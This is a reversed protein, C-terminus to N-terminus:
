FQGALGVGGPLPALGVTPSTPPAAMDVQGLKLTTRVGDYRDPDDGAVRLAIWTIIGVLGLAGAGITGMDMMAIRAERKNLNTLTTTSRSPDANYATVKDNLKKAEQDALYWLAGGGGLGVIGASLGVWSVSRVFRAHSQYKQVFDGSPLMQASHTLTKNEDITVDTRYTVFGEKELTLNHVGGAVAFAAMPSVGVTSGDLKITAGEQSVTLALSGSKKALIERVLIKTATRVEDFLGAPDGDFDRSLRNDVRSSRINALQMQIVVKSGSRTLSGTVLYDAGLAGGIEAICSMDDCGLQQKQAEYNLIRVIDQSSIAKFAGTKDLTEAVVGSLSAVLDKPLSATASLDMVAAKLKSTEGFGSDSGAGAATPKSAPILAFKTEPAPVPEAAAVPHEGMGIPKEDGLAPAEPPRNEPPLAAAGPGGARRVVKCVKALTATDVYLTKSGIMVQTTNNVTPGVVAKKGKALKAKKPGKPKASAKAPKTIACTDGEAPAEALAPSASLVLLGVSTAALLKAM